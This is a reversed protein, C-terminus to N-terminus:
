RTPAWAVTQETSSRGGVFSQSSRSAPRFPAGSFDGAYYGRHPHRSRTVTGSEEEIAPQMSM